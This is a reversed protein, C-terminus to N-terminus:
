RTRAPRCAAPAILPSIPVTAVIIPSSAIGAPKVVGSAGSSCARSATIASRPADDTTISTDLWASSSPRTSPMSNATAANVLRECSWRSKWGSM